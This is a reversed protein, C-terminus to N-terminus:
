GPLVGTRYRRVLDVLDRGDEVLMRVPLTGWVFADGHQQRLFTLMEANEEELQDATFDEDLDDETLPEYVDSVRDGVVVLSVATLATLSLKGGVEFTDEAASVDAIEDWRLTMPRYGFWRTTRTPTLVLGSSSEVTVDLVAADLLFSWWRGPGLADMLDASGTVKARYPGFGHAAARRARRRARVWRAGLVLPLVVVAVLVLLGLAAVPDRDGVAIGVAVAVLVVM